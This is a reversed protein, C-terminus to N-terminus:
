CVLLIDMSSSLILLIVFLRLYLMTYEESFIMMKLCTKMGDRWLCVINQTMWFALHRHFFHLLLTLGVQGKKRLKM